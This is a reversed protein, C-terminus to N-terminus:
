DHRWGQPSNVNTRVLVWAAALAVACHAAGGAPFPHDQGGVTVVCFAVASFVCLGYVNALFAVCPVARTAFVRWFGIGSYLAFGAMWVCEPAIAQMYAFTPRSFSDGPLALALAWLTAAVALFFRTQTTDSYAILWWLRGVLRGSWTNCWGARQRRRREVGSYFDM